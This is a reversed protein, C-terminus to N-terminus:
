TRKLLERLEEDEPSLELSKQFNLKANQKDGLGLYIMGLHKYFEGSLESNSVVKLMVKKAEEYKRQKFLVWAYTDVFSINDPENELATKALSVAEDLNINREAYSFALNNMSLYDKNNSVKISQRYCYDSSDYLKLQDYIYGLNVYSPSNSKDLEIAKLLYEKAEILQNLAILEQGLLSYFRFDNPFSLIANKCVEVSRSHVKETSYFAAIDLPAEPYTPLQRIFKTFTSDSETKKDLYFQIKGNMLDIDLNGEQSKTLNYLKAIENINSKDFFRGVQILISQFDSFKLNLKMTDLYNWLEARNSSNGFYNIIESAFKENTKENYYALFLYRKYNEYDQSSKYNTYLYRLASSQYETEILEKFLNNAKDIDYSNYINALRLKNDATPELDCIKQMTAILSGQESKNFNIDFLLKYPEVKHSDLNIAKNIHEKAMEMQNLNYYCQSIAFEIAYDSDYKKAMLFEQLAEYFYGAEKYGVGTIYHGLALESDTYYYGSRIPKKEVEQKSSCAVLLIIPVLFFIRLIRIQM